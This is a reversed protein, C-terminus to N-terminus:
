KVDMVFDQINTVVVDDVKMDHKITEALHKKFADMKDAEIVKDAKDDPYKGVSTIELTVITTIEKM